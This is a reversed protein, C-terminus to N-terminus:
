CRTMAAYVFTKPKFGTQLITDLEV